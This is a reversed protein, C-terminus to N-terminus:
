FQSPSRFVMRLKLHECMPNWAINAHGPRYIVIPDDHSLVMQGVIQHRVVGNEKALLELNASV